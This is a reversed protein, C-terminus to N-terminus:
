AFLKNHLYYSLGVLRTLDVISCVQGYVNKIPWPYCISVKSTHFAGAPPLSEPLWHLSYVLFLGQSIIIALAVFIFPLYKRFVRVPNSRGGRSAM